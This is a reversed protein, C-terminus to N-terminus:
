DWGRGGSKPAKEPKTNNIPVQALFKLNRWIVIKLVSFNIRLRVYKRNEVANESPGQILKRGSFM